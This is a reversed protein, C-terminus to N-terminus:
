IFRPSKKTAISINTITISISFLVKKDKTTKIEDDLHNLVYLYADCLASL